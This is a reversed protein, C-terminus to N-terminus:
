LSDKKNIIEKFKWLPEKFGNFGSVEYIILYDKTEYTKTDGENLQIGNITDSICGTVLIITLVLLIIKKMFLDFNLSIEKPIYRKLGSKVRSKFIDIKSTESGIQLVDM